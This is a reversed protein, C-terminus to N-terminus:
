IDPSAHLDLGAPYIVARLMNDPSPYVQPKVTLCTGEGRPTPLMQRGSCPDTGQAQAPSWAALLMAAAACILFRTFRRAMLTRMASLHRPDSIALVHHRGM